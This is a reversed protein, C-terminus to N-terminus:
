RVAGSRTRGTAPRPAAPAPRPGALLEGSVLGRVTGAAAVLWAAVLLLYLGAALADYGALGTRRALAASGTVCTGVPFTFAWWTM